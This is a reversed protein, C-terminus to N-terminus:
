KQGCRVARVGDNSVITPQKWPWAKVDGFVPDDDKAVLVNIGWTRCIRDVNATGSADTDEFLPALQRQMSDCDGSGGQVAGCRDDFSATQRMAYLGHFVDNWHTPNAQLVADRPEQERLRSYVQRADFTRRGPDSAYWKVQPVLRRDMLAFYSRLDVLEYVNSAVGCVVLAAVPWRWVAMSPQSRSWLRFFARLPDISWVLLVIQCVLFCRWGLDNNESIGSRFFTGVLLSTAVTLLAAREAEALHARRRWARRIWLWALVFWIGTELLYNLPLVLLDAFATTRPGFGHTALLVDLHDFGRVTLHLFRGPTGSARHLAVLYPAACIMSTAAASLWAVRQSNQRDILARAGWVILFIGFTFSVYISLGAASAFCLGALIGSGLSRRVNRAGVWLVLFGALCAVASMTHHAVWLMSDVLGPVQNNWWEVSAYITGRGTLLHSVDSLLVPLIDLGAVGVLAIGWKARREFGRAGAPYFFRLLLAVTAMVAWGCWVDGAIQAQRADVWRGGALDVLACITLWFYHYRLLVSHGPYFLANLAPVGQRAIGDILATRLNFDFSLVSAYLRDGFQLDIGSGCAIVLWIAMAAFVWAPVHGRRARPSIALFFLTAAAYFIWVSAAGAYSWLLFTVIPAIGVSLVVSFMAQWPWTRRRFDFLDFTWGFLFGPPLLFFAFLVSALAVGILDSRTFHEGTM